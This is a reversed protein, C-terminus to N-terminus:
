SAYAYHRAPGNHRAPHHAEPCECRAMEAGAPTWASLTARAQVAICMLAVEYNKQTCASRGAGVDMQIPNLAPPERGVSLGPPARVQYVQHERGGHSSGARQVQQLLRCGKLEMVLWCVRVLWGEQHSRRCTPKVM